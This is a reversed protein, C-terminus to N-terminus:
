TLKINQTALQGCAAAIDDGQTDRVMVTINNDRLKTVFKDIDYLSTPVLEKSIGEPSMHAISNFPIVNLKSPLSRCLKTLARIDEERDNIGKLMVYEFTIRTDTIRSYYRIADLVDALPFRKNIPMIRSRIDDFTSHLSLALKIRYPSDALVRINEPIGSTSVTIRNRSIRNNHQNTFIDLAAMTNQFNILPEGMGMFVINTIVNKGVDKATLFYQDVIEGVTLNRKFGMLGTACFKCDLPCGVQTSICLTNREGGPILVTEIAYDDQTSYLFKKTASLNSSQTTKLTLTELTFDQSLKKRLGKPLTGMDEFKSVLNNYLWNFVQSARFKKDGISLFYKELESITLGKIEIKKKTNM